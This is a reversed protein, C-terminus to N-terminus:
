TKQHRHALMLVDSSHIYVRKKDADIRIKSINLKKLWKELTKRTVGLFLLVEKVTYLGKEHRKEPSTRIQHHHALMLVDCHQIYLRKRDTYMYTKGINFKVIWNKITYTSFGFNRSIDEITYIANSVGSPVKQLNSELQEGITADERNMKRAHQVTLRLVDHYSIYMRKRDTVIFKKEIASELVWKRVTAVSVGMFTAVEVLTYFDQELSHSGRNTMKDLKGLKRVNKDSLMVVDDHTIYARARDTQIIVKEIGAQAIWRRITTRSVGLVWAACQLTYM